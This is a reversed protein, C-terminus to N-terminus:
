PREIMLEKCATQLRSAAGKLTARAFTLTVAGALAWIGGVMLPTIASLHDLLLGGVVAGLAIAISCATVLVGGIQELREPVTPAGWTLM